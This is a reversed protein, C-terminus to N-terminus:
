SIQDKRTRHDELSPLLPQNIAQLDEPTFNYENKLQELHYAKLEPDPINAIADLRAKVQDRAQANAKRDKESNVISGVASGVGIAAAIASM